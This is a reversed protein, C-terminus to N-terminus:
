NGTLDNLNVFDEEQPQPAPKAKQEIKAKKEQNKDPSSLQKGDKGKAALELSCRPLNSPARTWTFSKSFLKVGKYGTVKLKDAAVMTLAANYAKGTKPDYIWGIDWSGEPMFQLGGLIQLGCITSTRLSPDPNFRDVLPKGESNYPDKLWVIKGCLSSGCPAIEVAGKGSDDFWIGAERPPLPEALVKNTWVFILLASICFGGWNFIWNKTLSKLELRM